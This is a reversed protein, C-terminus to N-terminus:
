NNQNEMKNKRKIIKILSLISLICIITSIVVIIIAKMNEFFENMTISFFLAALFFSALILLFLGLFSVTGNKKRLFELNDRELNAFYNEFFTLTSSLGVLGLLVFLSDVENESLYQNIIIVVCAITLILGITILIKLVSTSLKIM